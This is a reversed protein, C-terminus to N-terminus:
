RLDLREPVTQRLQFKLVKGTANRPLADVVAMHQPCKFKALETECRKALDSLDLQAGEELVIVACGTEGWKSDPVGIVAAEAIESMAYLVNEVEAPYVNEGGSIYMDKLRDEIYCYGDEDIRGIDGSRFWGDVFAEANADPRNWYGPTIAPGRMWIEGLEGPSADSGDERVIKMETHMMARGASGVKGPVDEKAVACNSATSETMGYGEQIRIGREFWWQVLADPVAEAGALMTGVGSIDLTDIDPHVKMANYMAPVGLFHTIGLSRDAFLHLTACPDFMRQILTTAGPYLANSVMAFGGIHFLPMTALTVVSPGTELGMAGNVAAFTVMEHTIVVGKPRGTTGSSYMLLCADSMPQDFPKASLPQVSELVEEYPSAGGQGDTMVWHDVSTQPKLAGALEAFMEDVLVLKPGSDNVIFALETPTLRFNLALGIAGIRWAGFVLEVIDTSNLALFGVRDGAGIGLSQLYAAVRGVSDHMDAYTFRRGSAIDMQALKGQQVRAHQAIWDVAIPSGKAPPLESPTQTASM